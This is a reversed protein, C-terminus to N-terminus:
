IWEYGGVYQFDGLYLQHEQLPMWSGGQKHVEHDENTQPRRNIYHHEM